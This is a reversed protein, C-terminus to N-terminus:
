NTEAYELRRFHETVRAGAPKGAEVDRRAWFRALLKSIRGASSERLGELEEPRAVMLADHAHGTDPLVILLLVAGCIRRSVSSRKVHRFVGGEASALRELRGDRQDV